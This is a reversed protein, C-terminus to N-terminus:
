WHVLYSDKISNKLYRLLHMYSKNVPKPKDTWIQILYQHVFGQIKEWHSGDAKWDICAFVVESM